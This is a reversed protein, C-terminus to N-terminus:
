QPKAWNAQKRLDELREKKLAEFDDWETLKVVDVADYVEMVGHGTLRIVDGWSAAQINAKHEADKESEADVTVTLRVDLEVEYRM